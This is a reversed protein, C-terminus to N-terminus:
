PYRLVYRWFLDLLRDVAATLSMGDPATITGEKEQDCPKAQPGTLDNGQLKTVDVPSRALDCHAAFSLKVVTKWKGRVDTLCQRGVKAFKTGLARCASDEQPHSCREAAKKAGGRNAGDNAAGHLSSPKLRWCHSRMQKAVRQRGAHKTSPGRHAFDALYKAM